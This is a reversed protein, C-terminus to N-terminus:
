VNTNWSRIVFIPFVLICMHQSFSFSEYRHTDLSGCVTLLRIMMTNCECRVTGGFM